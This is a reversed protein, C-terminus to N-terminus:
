RLSVKRLTGKRGLANKAGPLEGYSKPTARAFDSDVDEFAADSPQRELEGLRSRIEHADADHSVDVEPICRDVAAHLSGESSQACGFFRKEVVKELDVEVEFDRALDQGGPWIPL